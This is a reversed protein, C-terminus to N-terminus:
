LNSDLELIVITTRVLFYDKIPDNKASTLFTDPQKTYPNCVKKKKIYHYM